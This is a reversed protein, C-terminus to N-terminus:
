LQKLRKRLNDYHNFLNIKYFFVNESKKIELTRFSDTLFITVSVKGM